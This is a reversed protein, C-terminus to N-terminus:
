FGVEDEEEKINMDVKNYDIEQIGGPVNERKIKWYQGEQYAGMDQLRLRIEVPTYDRFEQSKQIYKLISQADFVFADTSKDHYVRGVKVSELTEAVRKFSFYSNILATFTSGTTMDGLRMTTVVEVNQLAKNLISSWRDPPIPKPAMHLMRLCQSRFKGQHLLEEESLFILAQGNIIWKYYPPDTMYQTLQGYDLGTSFKSDIGYESERCADKECRSLQACPYFYTKRSLSQLVTTRIEDEPLPKPLSANLEMVQSVIDAHEDKLRLYVCAAFLWNNREGPGIDRLIAGTQVCPPADSYPIENFAKKHEKYSLKLRECRNLAIDLPVLTGDANIMKRRNEPDAANFYPLNIWSYTNSLRKKTQKPFVETNKKCAFMTVYKGLVEQVQDPPTPDIFFAYLHLKGSKSYFPALPIDFDYIAKVINLIDYDYNDIDIAGFYCFGYEDIPAIGISEEGTLHREYIGLNVPKRVLKCQTSVKGTEDTPGLVTSGYSSRNGIFLGCFQQVLATSVGM